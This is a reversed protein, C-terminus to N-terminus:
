PEIINESSRGLFINEGTLFSVMKEVHIQDKYEYILKFENSLCRNGRAYFTPFIIWKEGFKTYQHNEVNKLCTNEQM